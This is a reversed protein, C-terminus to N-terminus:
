PQAVIEHLTLTFLIPAGRVVGAPWDGTGYTLDPPVVLLASGSATLLQAGEALGPLLDSVKCRRQKASIQPLDTKQDAAVADYSVVVTDDPGPRLNGKSPMLAYVLGSDSFQLAFQKAIEKMYAQVRGPQSFDLRKKEEESKMEVLRQGIEVQLQQARHDLPYPKGQFTARVGDLFANFQAENWGLEALHTSAAFDSGVAAFAELNHHGSAPDSELEDKAPLLQVPLLLLLCTLRLRTCNM